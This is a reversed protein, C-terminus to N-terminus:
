SELIDYELARWEFLSKSLPVHQGEQYNLSVIKVAQPAKIEHHMKMAEIIAVVQGKEVVDGEKVLCSVMVGPMPSIFPKHHSEKSKNVDLGMEKQIMFAQGQYSVVWVQDHHYSTQCHISRKDIRIIVNGACMSEISISQGNSTEITQGNVWRYGVTVKKDNIVYHAADNVQGTISWSPNLPLGHMKHFRDYSLLIAVCAVDTLALSQPSQCQHDLAWQTNFYRHKEMATIASLLWAHNTIIGAMHWHRLGTLLSAKAQDFNAGKALVKIIMPDYKQSIAQGSDISTHWFVNDCPEINSVLIHGMTPKFENAPDEAYIRAQIAHGNLKLEDQSFNIKKGLAINLQWGVLDIDYVLETVGHEVQIRPNVEMLWYQNSAEDFLFEVTACSTIQVSNALKKADAYMSQRVSDNLGRAPAEEIIKQYRRQISCDRDGIIRIEGYQDALVQVEIHRISELYPEFYFQEDQFISKAERKVRAIVKHCDNFSRAVHMARGGGGMSAKVMIPGSWDKLDNINKTTKLTPVNLKKALAKTAFKDGFKAIVESKPGVWQFGEKVVWAAFEPNESLYGYGPHILDIQNAKAIRIIASQDLYDDIHHCIAGSRLHNTDNSEYIFHVELGIKQAACDIRKAIEGRNIILLRKM